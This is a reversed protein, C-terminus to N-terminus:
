YSKNKDGKSAGGSAYAAFITSPLRTLSLAQAKTLDIRTGGSGGGSANWRDVFNSLIDAVSPGEMRVHMDQWPMRAQRSPDLTFPAASDIAAGNTMLDMVEAEQYPAQWKGRKLKDWDNTVFVEPPLSPPKLAAVSRAIRSFSLPSDCARM